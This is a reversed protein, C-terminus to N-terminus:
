EGGVAVGAGLGGDCYIVRWFLFRFLFFFFSFLFFFAFVRTNAM